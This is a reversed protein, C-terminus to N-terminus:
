DGVLTWHNGDPAVFSFSREGFENILPDALETARSEKVRSHYHDIDTVRYTYLSYGLCGPRGRDFAEEVPVSTPIRRLLMRGSVMNAPGPGALPNDILNSYSADGPQMMFNSRASESMDDWSTLREKTQALLGLVDTYFKPLTEDDSQFVLGVHTVQSARFRSTEHVKGYSPVTYGFREYFCRRAHPHLVIMERVGVLNGVYPESKPVKYIEDYHPPVIHTPAGTRKAAEAHNWIEVVDLTMTASWRSGPVLLKVLGLGENLPEDWCMLRVLGHDTDQHLLRVSQLRSAVGYLAEADRADLKGIPGIRYGFLEWYRIQEILTSDTVGVCVEYLGSITPKTSTMTGGPKRPTFM